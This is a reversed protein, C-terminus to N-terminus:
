QPNIQFGGETNYRESHIPLNATRQLLHCFFRKGGRKLIIGCNYKHLSREGRGLEKDGVKRGQFRYASDQQVELPDAPCLLPLQPQRHPGTRGSSRGLCGGHQSRRKEAEGGPRQQRERPRGAAARREDQGPESHHLAAHLPPQHQYRRPYADCCAKQTFFTRLPSRIFRYSRLEEAPPDRSVLM